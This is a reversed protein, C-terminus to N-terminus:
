YFLMTSFLIIQPAFSDTQITAECHIILQMIRQAQIDEDKDIFCQVVSAECQIHTKKKLFLLPRYASM